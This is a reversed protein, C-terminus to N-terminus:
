RREDPETPDASCLSSHRHFLQEALPFLMAPGASTSVHRAVVALVVVFVHHNHTMAIEAM